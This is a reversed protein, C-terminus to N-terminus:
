LIYPHALRTSFRRCLAGPQESGYDDPEEPNCDDTEDFNSLGLIQLPDVAFERRKTTDIMRVFIHVVAAITAAEGHHYAARIRFRCDYITDIIVSPQVQLL